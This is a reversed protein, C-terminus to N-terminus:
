AVGRARSMYAALGDLIRELGFEGAQDRSASDAETAALPAAVGPFRHPRAPRRQTLAGRMVLQPQWPGPRAV